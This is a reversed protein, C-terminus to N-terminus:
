GILNGTSELVAMERYPGTVSTIEMDLVAHPFPLSRREEGGALVQECLGDDDRIQDGHEFLCSGHHECGTFTVPLFVLDNHVVVCASGRHSDIDLCLATM